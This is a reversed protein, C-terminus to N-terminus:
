TDGSISNVADALMDPSHKAYVKDVVDLTNGLVKAILWLSVGARAMRTAATHRLVHPTVGKIEARKAARTVHYNIGGGAGIVYDDRSNERLYELVPRLRKSIPM